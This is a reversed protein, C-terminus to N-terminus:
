NSPKDEFRVRPADRWLSELDYFERKDPQFIHIIVGHYDLVVWQSAPCGDSHATLGLNDRLKERIESGIAKLHPDSTGTCIVFYDAFSSVKRLDIIRIDEAKKDSAAHAAAFAITESDPIM